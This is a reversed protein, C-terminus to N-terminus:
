AEAAGSGFISSYAGGVATVLGAVGGIVQAAESAPTTQKAGAVPAPPAAQVKSSPSVVFKFVLFLGGILVVLGVLIGIFWKM